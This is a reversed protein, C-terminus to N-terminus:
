RDPTNNCNSYRPRDTQQDGHDIMLGAFAASSISSGNPNHVITSGLFWTNPLPGSGGHLPAIELPSATEWQLTYRCEATLQAFVALSISIGNPIHVWTPGRFCTNSPPSCQCLRTFTVAAKQWIVKVVQKVKITKRQMHLHQLSQM